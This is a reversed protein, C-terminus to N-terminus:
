GQGKKKELVRKLRKNDNSSRSSDSSNRIVPHIVIAILFFSIILL